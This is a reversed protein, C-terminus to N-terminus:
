FLREKKEESIHRNYIDEIIRLYEQKGKTRYLEKDAHKRMKKVMRDHDYNPKEMCDKIAYAFERSHYDAAEAVEQYKRLLDFAHKQEEYSIEFDGNYFGKSSKRAKSPQGLYYMLIGFNMKFEEYLNLFRQYDEHGLQAFSKAYDLWTWSKVTTNIVRVTDLDLKHRVEFFVPYRLRKLAEVRHQGDIIQMDENVVVPFDQTLNGYREIQEMLRKVHNPDIKRNADLKRFKNYDHTQYLQGERVREADNPLSM